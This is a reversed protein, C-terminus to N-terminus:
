RRRATRSHLPRDRASTRSSLHQSLGADDGPQAAQILPTGGEGLYLGPNYEYVPLLERYRWLNFPRPEILAPFTPGIKAFDYHAELWQSKCAPCVLLTPSYHARHVVIWASLM